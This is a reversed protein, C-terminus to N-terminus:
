QICEAHQQQETSIAGLRHFQEPFLVGALGMAVVVVGAVSRVAPRRALSMMQRALIGAGTMSPLTGVGFATMYLAGALADGSTITLLLASYVLGCPLWGWIMGYLFAQAPHRVPLLKRGFPELRRWFPEGIREIRAFRPFWGALYLGIGVMLIAAAWQLVLYGSRPSAIAFLSGGLTGILAGALAYSTIRGLNYAFLFRWLRGKEHRVEAPLSFTLAGMIGGCMGLCHLTSFLGILLPPILYNYELVVTRSYLARMM